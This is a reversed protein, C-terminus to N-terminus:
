SIFQPGFSRTGMLGGSSSSPLTGSQQLMVRQVGGGGVSLPRQIFQGNPLQQVIRQQSSPQVYPAPPLIIGPQCNFSTQQNQIQDPQQIV